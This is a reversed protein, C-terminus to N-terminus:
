KQNGSRGEWIQRKTEVNEGLMKKKELLFFSFLFLSFFVM